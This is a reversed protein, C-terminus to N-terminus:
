YKRIFFRHIPRKADKHKIGDAHEKISAEGKTSISFVKKCLKCFAKSNDNEVSQIWPYNKLWKSNFTTKRPAM